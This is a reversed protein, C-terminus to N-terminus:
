RDRRKRGVALGDAGEPAKCGESGSYRREAFSSSEGADVGPGVVGISPVAGKGGDPLPARGVLAKFVSM